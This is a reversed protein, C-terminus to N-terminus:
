SESIGEAFVVYRLPGGSGIADFPYCTVLSLSAGGALDAALRAHRADIVEGGRVRYDQWDGNPGQLRVVMGPKLDRLFSFHTDRHGSLVSHGASAPAATGALHTPGFALNRGSAGALVIQDVALEPVSLRAVPHTDAGPWPRTAPVDASAGAWAAKLLEQALWAKSYIYLAGGMQWTGLAVVGAIIVAFLGRRHREFMAM